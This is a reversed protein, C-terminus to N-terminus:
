AGPSSARSDTLNRMWRGQRLFHRGLLAKVLEASQLILFFISVEPRLWLSLVLALPILFLWSYLSEMLLNARVDGGIRLVYFVIVNATIVGYVLAQIGLMRGALLRIEDSVQFLDPIKRSLALVLLGYVATILCGLFLIRRTNVRAEDLQGAGLKTGVFVSVAVGMGGYVVFNLNAVTETIALAPVFNQDVRAYSWYLTMMALAWLLEMGMLSLSKRNMQGLVRRGLLRIRGPRLSFYARGGAIALLYATMELLRALLTALGAGATGLAPLGLHGFILLYNFLTNCVIAASSILMPLRTQGIARFAFNCVLSVAFPLYSIRVYALYGLGMEISLRDTIFIRFLNPAFVTAAVAFCGATLVAGGQSYLMLGQCKGHDGAGYFQSIYAGMAGILGYLVASVLMFYKNAVAVGAMSQADLQGVMVTDIFGMSMAVLQSFMIPLALRFLEQYFSRDGLWSGAIGSASRGTQGSAKM